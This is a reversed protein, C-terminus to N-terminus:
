KKNKNRIIFCYILFALANCLLGIPLLVKSKGEQIICIGLCIIAIVALLFGFGKWFKLM